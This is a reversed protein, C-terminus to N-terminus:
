LEKVAKQRVDRNIALLEPERELLALVDRWSMADRNGFRSYVVRVFELDEHTDVTWRQESGSGGTVSLLRFREPHERLYPTVHVREYDQTAETWARELASRTMISFDLGRPYTPDLSNSAFDVAPRADLFRGVVVDILGPDILPCDSTVRVIADLGFAAAAGHYRDLVDQESGRFVDADLGEAEAVVADDQPLTSTAVIVRDIRRARAVRRVVRALMSCGGIDRLVKGPLRTSGVRAQIIVGIM